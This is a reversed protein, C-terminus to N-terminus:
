ILGKIVVLVNITKELKRLRKVTGKWNMCLSVSKRRMYTPGGMVTVVIHSIPYGLIRMDEVNKLIGKKIKKLLRLVNKGMILFIFAGFVIKVNMKVRTIFVIKWIFPTYANGVQYIFVEMVNMVIM